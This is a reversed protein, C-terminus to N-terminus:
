VMVAERYSTMPQATSTTRTPRQRTRMVFYPKITKGPVGSRYLNTGLGRRAAHWIHWEPLMKDRELEHDPRENKDNGRAKYNPCEAKPKGCVACRNLAPLISRNLLNGLDM